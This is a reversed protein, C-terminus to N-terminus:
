FPNEMNLLLLFLMKIMFNGSNQFVNPNCDCYRQSFADMMRDIKQAEGPL